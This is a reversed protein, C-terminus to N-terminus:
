RPLINVKFFKMFDEELTELPGTNEYVLDYPYKEVNDDAMNGYYRENRNKVLLTLVKTKVIQKFKGIELPERIHAFMIEANDDKVFADYKYQLFKFPLDNYNSFALKVDSFLKREADSKQDLDPVGALSLIHKIPEISSVNMVKYHKGVIDVITDKGAGGSGNIIIVMKM